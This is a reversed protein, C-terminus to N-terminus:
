GLLASLRSESPEKRLIMRITRLLYLSYDTAHEVLLVIHGWPQQFATCAHTKSDGSFHQAYFALIWSEAAAAHIEATHAFGDIQRKSGLNHDAIEYQNV